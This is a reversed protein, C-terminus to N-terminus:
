LQVPIICVCVDAERGQGKFIVQVLDGDTMYLSRPTDFEKIKRTGFMFHITHHDFDIYYKSSCLHKIYKLFQEQDLPIDEVFNCNDSLYTGHPFHLLEFKIWM